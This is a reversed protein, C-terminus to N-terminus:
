LNIKKKAEVKCQEVYTNFREFEEPKTERQRLIAIQASISYRRGVLRDVYKGYLKEFSEPNVEKNKQALRVNM